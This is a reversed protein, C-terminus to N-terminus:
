EYVQEMKVTVKYTLTILTGSASSSISIDSGLLRARERIGTLGMHRGPSLNDVNFGKGNDSIELLIINEIKKINVYADSANSHKVINNLCEQIIRYYRIEDGERFFNDIDDISVHFNISCSESVKELMTEIATKLGLQDLHQPRLDYIIERIEQIVEGALNSIITLSKASGNTEPNKIRSLLHNKILLLKQGISDHLELAIRNRENEQSEMLREAFFRRVENENKAADLEMQRFAEKERHRKVYNDIAIWVMSAMLMLAGAYIFSTDSKTDSSYDHTIYLFVQVAIFFFFVAIGTILIRVEYRNEKISKFLVWSYIVLLLFVLFVYEEMLDLFNITTTNIIILVITFIIFLIILSGNVIKKYGTAAIQKVTFGVALPSLLFSIVSLLYFLKPTNFMLQITNSNSIIKMSISTLYVALGPLAPIQRLVPIFILLIFGTVGFIVALILKVAEGSFINKIIELSPGLLIERNFMLSYQGTHIRIFLEDGEKYEPLQLLNQNRGTFTKSGPHGTQYILTDNLFAQMFYDVQGIYVAPILLGAPPLKTRMWITKGEGWKFIEAPTTMRIWEEDPSSVSRFDSPHTINSEELVFWENLLILGNEKKLQEPYSYSILSLGILIAPLVIRKM